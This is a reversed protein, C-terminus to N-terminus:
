CKIKEHTAVITDKEIVNSKQIAKVNEIEGDYTFWIEVGLEAL